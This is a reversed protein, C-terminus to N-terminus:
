WQREDFREIEVRLMRFTRQYQDVLANVPMKSM